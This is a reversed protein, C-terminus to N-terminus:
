SLFNVLGILLSMVGMILAVFYWVAGDCYMVSEEANLPDVYIDIEPKIKDNFKEAASFLFGREGKVIEALFVRHGIYEKGNLIYSYEIEPKFGARSASTLKRKVVSKKIVTAKVRTWKSVRSYLRIMKIGFWFAAASILFCFVLTFIKM